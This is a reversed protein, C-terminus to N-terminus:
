FTAGAESAATSNAPNPITGASDPLSDCTRITYIAGESNPYNYENSLQWESDYGSGQTVEFKYWVPDNGGTVADSAIVASMTHWGNVEVPYQLWQSPNPMPPENDVQPQPEVEQVDELWHDALIAFDDFNVIGDFNLDALLLWESMSAYQTGGYAGMNIRGGNPFRENSLAACPDGGDVCPSTVDDLIWEKTTPNFRGRQSLLHYDGSSADAFGPEIFKGEYLAQIEEASLARNYVRVDDITGNFFYNEWGYAGAGIRIISPQSGSYIEPNNDSIM